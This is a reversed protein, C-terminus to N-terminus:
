TDHRDDKRACSEDAMMAVAQKRTSGVSSVQMLAARHLSVGFDGARSKSAQGRSAGKRLVAPAHAHVLAPFAQAGGARADINVLVPQAHERRDAGVRLRDRTRRDDWDALPAAM